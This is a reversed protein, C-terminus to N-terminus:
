ERSLRSPFKQKASSAPNYFVAFAAAATVAATGIFATTTGYMARIMLSLAVIFVIISATLLIM